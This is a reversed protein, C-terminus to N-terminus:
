SQKFESLHLKLFDLFTKAAPAPEPLSAAGIEVTQPPDLPLIRVNGSWSRGNLANNMSLGLGAEVMSYTALSDTTSFKLNPTIGCRAFVRANDIDAHPYTEIYPQEAFALVPFAPLAALPHGAPLWATMEDELIPLWDHSGERRSILCLDLQHANLRELLETSYGGGLHVEIGPYQLHFASTIRALPAYFASYATGVSVTGVDLGRIKASLQACGEGARLLARIAPLMREGEPTLRVGSRQRLLLAFGTEEELAAIMRSIGSPTYQLAEAAASLSGTEVACVLARYRDLEM